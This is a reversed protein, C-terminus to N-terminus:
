LNGYFTIPTYENIHYKEQDSWTPAYIFSSFGQLIDIFILSMELAALHRTPLM